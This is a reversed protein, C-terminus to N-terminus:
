LEIKLGILFNKLNNRNFRDEIYEFKFNLKVKRHTLNEPISYLLVDSSAFVSPQYTDLNDGTLSLNLGTGLVFNTNIKNISLEVFTGLGYTNNYNSFLNEAIYGGVKLYPTINFLKKEFSIHTSFINNKEANSVKSNGILLNLQIKDEDSSAHTNITSFILTIILPLIYKKVKFIKKFM